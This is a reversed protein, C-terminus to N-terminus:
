DIIIKEIFATSDCNKITLTVNKQEKKGKIEYRICTDLKVKNWMDANGNKLIKSVVSTDLNKSQLSFLAENSFVRNKIRINKLLRSNPGYNFETGKKNWIFVVLIIGIVLGFLYYPLREKFTM